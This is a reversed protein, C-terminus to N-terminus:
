GEWQDLIAQVVEADAGGGIELVEFSGEGAPRLRADIGHSALHARLEEGRGNAVRIVKQDGATLVRKVHPDGSGTVPTWSPPDSAPFSEDSAEDIIDQYKSM